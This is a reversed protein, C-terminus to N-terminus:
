TCLFPKTITSFFSVAHGFKVTVFRKGKTSYGKTFVRGKHCQRLPKCSVTEKTFLDDFISKSRAEDLKEKKKYNNYYHNYDNNNCLTYKATFWSHELSKNKSHQM